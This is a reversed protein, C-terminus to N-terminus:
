LAISACELPLRTWTERNQVKQADTLSVQKWVILMIITTGIVMVTTTSLSFTADSTQALSTSCAVIALIWVFFCKFIMHLLDSPWSQLPNCLETERSFAKM